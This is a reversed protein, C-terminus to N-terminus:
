TAIVSFLKPTGFLFLKKALIIQPKQPINLRKPPIILPKPPIIAVKKLIFSYFLLPFISFLLAPGVCSRGTLAGTM